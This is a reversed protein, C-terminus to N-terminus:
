PKQELAQRIVNWIDPTEYGRRWSAIGALGYKKVLDMRAKVSVEDEMWIKNLKNGEKYEVYNQGAEPLYTPTLNQERVIRRATDMFVARSSVQTKGDKVEETWIRTYFPIGLVLKHAPVRDEQLIRAISNEVWPLSSVSGAVPSSAWHEDYAMLMMYDVTEALAPRDYFMSWMESTSKPTVDISVVLGQEHLFPVLERVFQTLNAKDQLYVNEFDINIGQLQYMQAFSVLQRIMHMRRDHTSLAESTRKPEFGNSFLAWVQYNRDHAWKVYAASALNKLNGEGDMLEFWTPSIVNLGPMDGITATDPNKATVQEWTMVIHGGLPKWPIFAPPQEGNSVAEVRDLRIDKKQVFGIYGSKLQVRYWGNEESWIMVEEDQPLDALIPAKISPEKRMAITRDPKGPVPITRGWQITDGARLLIVAGTEDSERLEVRYFPLLPAMPLYIRGDVKEVAFRLDFPKDNILATLQSTRLRLVKDRTTIIVSDSAEEYVVHPDIYQRVIELPLKLSEKEGTAPWELMRGGYFVPKDLGGFDPPLHETNPFDRNWLIVLFATPIFFIFALFLFLAWVRPRAGRPRRAARPLRGLEM